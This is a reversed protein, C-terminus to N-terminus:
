HQLVKSQRSQEVNNNEVGEYKLIADAIDDLIKTMSDLGRGGRVHNSFGLQDRQDWVKAASTVLSRGYSTYTSTDGYAYSTYGYNFFDFILVVGLVLVALIGFTQLNAVTFLSKLDFGLTRLSNEAAAAATSAVTATAPM